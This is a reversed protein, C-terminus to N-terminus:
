SETAYTEFTLCKKSTLNRCGDTPVDALSNWNGGLMEMCAHVETVAHVPRVRDEKNFASSGASRHTWEGVFLYSYNPQTVSIMPRTWLLIKRELNVGM